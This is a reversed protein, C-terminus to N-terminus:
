EKSIYDLIELKMQDTVPIDEGNYSIASFIGGSVYKAHPHPSCSTCNYSFKKVFKRNKELFYGEEYSANKIIAIYNPMKLIKFSDEQEHEWRNGIICTMVSPGSEEIWNYGSIVLVAQETGNLVLVHCDKPSVNIGGSRSYEWSGGLFARALYANTVDVDILYIAPIIVKGTACHLLGWKDNEKFSAYGNCEKKIEQYQPNVSIRKNKIDYMGWLLKSNDHSPIAVPIFSKSVLFPKTQEFECPVLEVGRSNVIGVCNNKFVEAIFTKGDYYYWRSLHHYQTNNYKIKRTADFKIPVVVKGKEDMYGIQGNLVVYYLGEVNTKKILDYPHEYDIKGDEKRVYYKQVFDLKKIDSM